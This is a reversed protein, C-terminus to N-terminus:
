EREEVTRKIWQENQEGITQAYIITGAVIYLYQRCINYITPGVEQTRYM